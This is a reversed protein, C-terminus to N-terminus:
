RLYSEIMYKKPDKESGELQEGTKTFVESFYLHITVGKKGCADCLEQRREQRNTTGTSSALGRCLLFRRSPGSRPQLQNAPNIMANYYSAYCSYSQHLPAQSDKERKDSGGLRGQVNMAVAGALGEIYVSFVANLPNMHLTPLLVPRGHGLLLSERFVPWKRAEAAFGSQTFASGYHAKMTVCDMDKLIGPHQVQFGLRRTRVRAVHQGKSNIYKLSSLVAEDFNSRGPKPEGVVELKKTGSPDTTKTPTNRVDAIFTRM